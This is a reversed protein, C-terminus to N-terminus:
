VINKTMDEELYQYNYEEKWSKKIPINIIWPNTKRWLLIKGKTLPNDKSFCANKYSNFMDEYLAKLRNGLPTGMVGECSVFNIIAVENANIIPYQNVLNEKKMLNYM